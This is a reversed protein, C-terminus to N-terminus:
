GYTISLLRLALCFLCYHQRTYSWRGREGSDGLHRPSPVIGTGCTAPTGGTKTAAAVKLVVDAPYMVSSRRWTQCPSRRLYVHRAHGPADSEVGDPM